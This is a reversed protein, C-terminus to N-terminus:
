NNTPFKITKLWELWKEAQKKNLTTYKGDEDEVYIMSPAFDYHLLGYNSRNYSIETKTGVYGIIGQLDSILSDLTIQDTIFISALDTIQQNKANQFSCGLYYSTDGDQIVKYFDCDITGFKAESIHSSIRQANGLTPILLLLLIMKKM